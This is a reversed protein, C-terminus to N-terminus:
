DRPAHRTIDSAAKQFMLAMMRFMMDNIAVKDGNVSIDISNGDSSVLIFSKIEGTLKQENEIFARCNDFSSM